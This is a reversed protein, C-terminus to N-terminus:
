NLTITGVAPTVDVMAGLGAPLYQAKSVTLSVTGTTVGSQLDLAFQFLPSGCDKAPKLSGKQFIGLMLQGNKVGGALLPVESSSAYTLDFIGLDKIYRDDSFKGYDLKSGAQLTMAVGRATTGAPGVLNLVLRTSTSSADKELRWGPGTPNTYAVSTAITTTPTTTSGGGGGGGCGFLLVLAAVPAITRAHIM